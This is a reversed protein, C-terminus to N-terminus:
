SWPGAWNASKILQFAFGLGLSMAITINTVSVILPM